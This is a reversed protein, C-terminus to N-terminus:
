GSMTWRRLSRRRVAETGPFPSPSPRRRSGPSGPRGPIALPVSPLSPRCRTALANRNMPRRCCGASRASGHPDRRERLPPLAVGRAPGPVSSPMSSRLRLIPRFSNTRPHRAAGPSPVACRTSWGASRRHLASDIRYRKGNWTRYSGAIKRRGVPSAGRHNRRVSWVGTGRRVHEASPANM